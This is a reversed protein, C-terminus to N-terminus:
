EVYNTLCEHTGLICYINGGVHNGEHDGEYVKSSIFVGQSSSRLTYTPQM